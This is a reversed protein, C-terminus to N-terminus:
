IPIICQGKKLNVAGQCAAECRNTFPRQLNDITGCWLENCRPCNCKRQKTCLGQTIETAGECKASCENQFSRVHDGMSGCVPSYMWTCLCGPRKVSETGRCTLSDAGPALVAAAVIVITLLLLSTM